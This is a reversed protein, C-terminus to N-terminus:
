NPIAGFSIKFHVFAEHAGEIIDLKEQENLKKAYEDLENKFTILDTHYEPVKFASFFSLGGSRFTEEGLVSWLRKHIFRAGENSGVLVYMAGLAQLKNDYKCTCYDSCAAKDGLAKIDNELLHARAVYSMPPEHESIATEQSKFACYYARLIKRYGELTLNASLISRNVPTTEVEKHLSVTEQKLVESFKM